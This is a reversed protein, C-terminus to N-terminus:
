QEEPLTEVLVAKPGYLGQVDFFFQSRFHDYKRNFLAFYVKLQALIKTSFELIGRSTQYM